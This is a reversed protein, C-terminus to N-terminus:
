YSLAGLGSLSGAYIIWIIIVWAFSFISLGLAVWGIPSKNLSLSVIALILGIIAYPLSAWNCCLGGLITWLAALGSFVVGIIGTVLAATEKSGKQTTKDHRTLKSGCNLCIEANDNTEKGCSQCYSSGNFPNAGCSKCYIAGNALKEGCNRCYM